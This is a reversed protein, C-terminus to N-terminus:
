AAHAAAGAEAVYQSGVGSPPRGAGRPGRHGRPGGACVVHQLQVRNVKNVVRVIPHNGHSVSRSFSAAYIIILNTKPLVVKM